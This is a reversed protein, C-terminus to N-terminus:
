SPSSLREAPDDPGVHRGLWETLPAYRRWSARIRELAAPTGLWDPAGHREGAAIGKRRLLDIRPHGPDVGRPARKLQEGHLECGAAALAGVIGALPEGSRDRLVADRYRELQGRSMGYYGGATLLGDASLQLYYSGVGDPSRTVAAASTKYPSRDASFRVDRYPRFFKIEGFEPELAAILALMPARVAREYVDQRATWYAKSNDAELGDYFGLAEDDFGGFGGAVRCM